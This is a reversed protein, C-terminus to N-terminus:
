LRTQLDSAKDLDAISKKQEQLLFDSQGQYLWGLNFLM